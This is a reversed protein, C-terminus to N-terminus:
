DPTVNDFKSWLKEVNETNSINQHILLFKSWLDKVLNLLSFLLLFQVKKIVWKVKAKYKAKM